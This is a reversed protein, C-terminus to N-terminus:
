QSCRTRREETEQLPVETSFTGEVGALSGKLFALGNKKIKVYDSQNEWRGQELTGHPCGKVSYDICHKM